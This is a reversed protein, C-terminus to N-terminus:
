RSLAPRSARIRSRSAATFGPLVIVSFRMLLRRLKAVNYHIPRADLAHRGRTRLGIAAVDFVQAEIGARDLALTLLAASRLEGTSALLATASQHPIGDWRHAQALLQDTEGDLASVVAM